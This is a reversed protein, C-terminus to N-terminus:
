PMNWMNAVAFGDRVYGNRADELAQFEDPHAELFAVNQAMISAPDFPGIVEM